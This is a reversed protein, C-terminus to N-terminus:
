PGGAPGVEFELLTLRGSRAAITAAVEPAVALLDFRGLAGLAVAPSVFEGSGGLVVWARTRFSAPRTIQTANPITVKRIAMNTSLAADDILPEITPEKATGWASTPRFLPQVSQLKGTPTFRPPQEAYSGPAVGPCFCGIVILEASGTNEANHLIGEPAFVATGAALPVPLGEVWLTGRGRPVYM